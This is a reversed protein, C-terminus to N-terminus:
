PFLELLPANVVMYDTAATRRVKFLRSTHTKTPTLYELSPMVSAAGTYGATTNDLFPKSILL